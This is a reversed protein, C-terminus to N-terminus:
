TKIARYLRFWPAQSVFVPYRYTKAGFREKFWILGSAGTPSGGLNISGLKLKRADEILRALMLYAPKYQGYNRDIFPQWSLAERGEILAIM